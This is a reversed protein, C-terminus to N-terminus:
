VFRKAYGLRYQLDRSRERIFTAPNGGVIAYPAVDKTVVAGAAVVAGEGITVGPLIIAHSAVWAHSGISVPGGTEAFDPSDVAHERTYITVHSGLNVCDGIVLGSRGDLFATDGITCHAGIVIGEPAYFEARWHISSSAPISMGARRYFYKRVGHSPVYGLDALLRLRLDSWLERRLENARLAAPPLVTKVRAKWSPHPLGPSESAPHDAVTRQM